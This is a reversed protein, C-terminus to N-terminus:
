RVTISQFHYFLRRYYDRVLLPTCRYSVAVLSALPSSVVFVRILRGVGDFTTQLKIADESSNIVKLFLGKSQDEKLPHIIVDLGSTTPTDGPTVALVFNPFPILVQWM